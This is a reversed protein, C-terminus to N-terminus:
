MTMSIWPPCDHAGNRIHALWYSRGCCRPIVLNIMRAHILTALSVETFCQQCNCIIASHRDAAMGPWLNLIYTFFDHRIRLFCGLTMQSVAILSEPLVYNYRIEFYKILVSSEKILNKCEICMALLLPVDDIRMLAPITICFICPAELILAIEFLAHIPIHALDDHDSLPNSLFVIVDAMQDSTCIAFPRPFPPLYGTVVSHYNVRSLYRSQMALADPDHLQNRIKASAKPTLVSM